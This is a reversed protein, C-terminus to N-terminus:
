TDDPVPQGNLSHVKGTKKDIAVVFDNKITRNIQAAEAHILFHYRDKEEYSDPSVSVITDVTDTLNEGRPFFRVREQVFQLATTEAEEKTVKATCGQLIIMLAALVAVMAVGYQGFRDM